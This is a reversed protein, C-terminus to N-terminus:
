MGFSFLSRAARYLRIGLPQPDAAIKARGRTGIPLPPHDPDLAVRAQYSTAAPRPIGERDFHVLLDSQEALERPAIKLDLGALEVISGRLIRSPSADVQLRVRQGPRVFQIQSQDIVVLAELESHEGVLCLLTGVDLHSGQSGAELPTGRAATLEGTRYFSSPPLPPPIVTGAAPARMVLREADQRLQLLRSELDELDSTAAPIQSAAAPDEGQRARLNTLHLRQLNRQGDLEVIKRQLDLNVLRALQQGAAVTEGAAVSEELRGPVTVYVRRADQPQIVAPAVIRYPVPILMVAAVLGLAALMAIRVRGRRLRRRNGPHQFFRLSQYVPVGVMGVAILLVAATGLVEVDNAKALQYVVYLVAAVVMWRYCSSAVAYLALLPRREAPLSRNEAVERDLFFRRVRDGLLARSQQALNPVGLWDALVYYGDFRMLPNGNFLLTNVSCIVVLNLLLSNLLGPATFWWVILCAAALVIEVVIGAASVAIRQWRNPFLWADSVNCYLCPTFVLLLIGIEHCEGGFHRCTLAHGLEHLCKACALAVALWVLNGASLFTTLDPLRALLAEFQVTALLGAAVCLLVCATLFFGSFLWALRSALRQLWPEPDVSAVRIALLNALREWRSRRRARLQSEWMQHGQGPLDSVVLGSQYLRTVFAMIQPPQLQLPAFREAFARQIQGLSSRGDLMQWVALEEDHLQFYRLAVPDKLVWGRAGGWQQPHVSVDQRRRLPLPRETASDRDRSAPPM